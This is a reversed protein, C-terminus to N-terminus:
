FGFAEDGTRLPTGVVHAWFDHVAAVHAVLDETRWEPCAPVQAGPAATAAAVLAAGERDIAAFSADRDLLTVIDGDERRARGPGRGSHRDAPETGTRGRLVHDDGRLMAPRGRARPLRPRLEEYRHAGARGRDRGM